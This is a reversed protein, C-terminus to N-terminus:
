TALMGSGLVGLQGGQHLDFATATAGREAHLEADVDAVYVEGLGGVDPAGDGLDGARGGKTLDRRAGGAGHRLEQVSRDLEGLDLQAGLEPLKLVGDVAQGLLTADPTSRVM